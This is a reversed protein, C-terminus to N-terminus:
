LFNCKFQAAYIGLLILHVRGDLVHNFLRPNSRSLPATFFYEVKRDSESRRSRQEDTVYDGSHERRVGQRRRLIAGAM